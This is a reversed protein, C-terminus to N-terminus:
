QLEVGVRGARGKADIVSLSLYGKGPWDVVSQRAYTAIAVPSGDALWTFPLVGDRVKLVLVGEAEVM